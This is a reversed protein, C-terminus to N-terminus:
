LERIKISRFAIEDNHDQLVVHGRTVEGFGQIEKFKSKAILDRLAPSGREYELVKSGNLWHEIHNGNVILHSENWQGPPHVIKQQPAILDYLAGVTRNGEVGKRADPHAQDDLIQYEFGLASHGKQVMTEDVLYKIGSNGGPPLRWQLKLEFNEFQDVTVLDRLQGVGPRKKLIGGEVVWGASPFEDRRFGRWGNTTEGDFLLRWGADREAPTLTNPVSAQAAPRMEASSGACSAVVFPLVLLTWAKPM